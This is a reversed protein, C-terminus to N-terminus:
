EKEKKSEKCKLDEVWLVVALRNAPTPDVYGGIWGAWTAPTGRVGARLAERAIGAASGGYARILWHIASKFEDSPRDAM